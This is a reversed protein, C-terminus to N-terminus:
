LLGYMGKIIDFACYDFFEMKFYGEKDGPMDTLIAIQQMLATGMPFVMIGDKKLNKLLSLPRKECAAFIIIADFMDPMESLDTGDGSFVRINNIKMASIRERASGALRENFEVTVVEKVLSSLIATSYASGTGVELVHFNRSPSLYNLMRALILPQDSKEGFGISVTKETYFMDTFVPDFFKEQDFKEFASVINKRIKNDHLLKIFKKKDGM